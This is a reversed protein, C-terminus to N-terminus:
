RRQGHKMDKAQQPKNSGGRQQWKKKGTGNAKAKHNQHQKGGM